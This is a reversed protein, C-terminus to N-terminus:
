KPYESDPENSCLRILLWADVGGNLFYENKVYRAGM